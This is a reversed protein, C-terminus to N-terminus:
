GHGSPVSISSGYRGLRTCVTHFYRLGPLPCHPQCLESRLVMVKPFYVKKKLQAKGDIRRHPSGSAFSCVSATVTADVMAVM